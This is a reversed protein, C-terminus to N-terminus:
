KTQSVGNVPKIGVRYQYVLSAGLWGAVCLILFGCISIGTVLLDPRSFSTAEMRLFLSTAYCCWTVMTLKMHLIVVPIAQSHEDIKTLELLGSLMTFLASITGITLLVGSVYWINNEDSVNSAIDGLTSLSWCAIPFHVLAPHAPHNQILRKIQM